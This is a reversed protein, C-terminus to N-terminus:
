KGELVLLRQNLSDVELLLGTIISLLIDDNQPLTKEFELREGIIFLEDFHSNVYTELNPRDAIEIVVEDYKFITEDEKTESLVNNRLVVTATNNEVQKVWFKDPSVNSQSQM